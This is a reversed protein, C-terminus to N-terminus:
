TWGCTLKGRGEPSLPPHPPQAKASRVAVRLGRVPGAPWGRGLPSLALIADMM